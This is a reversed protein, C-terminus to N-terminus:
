SPREARLKIMIGLGGEDAKFAEVQGGHAKTMAKVLALGLGSGGTDRNRSTDARHFREFLASRTNDDVGPGSDSVILNALGKDQYAYASLEPLRLTAIVTKWCTISSRACFNQIAM